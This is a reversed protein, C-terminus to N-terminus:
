ASFEAPQPRRLLRILISRRAPERDPHDTRTARALREADAEACRDAIRRTVVHTNDFM